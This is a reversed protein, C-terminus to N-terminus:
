QPITSKGALARSIGVGGRPTTAHPGFDDMPGLPAFRAFWRSPVSYVALDLAVPPAPPGWPSFFFLKGCFTSSAATTLAKCSFLRAGQQDGLSVAVAVALPLVGVAKAWVCWRGQSAGKKSKKSEGHDEEEKSYGAQDPCHVTKVATPAQHAKGDM